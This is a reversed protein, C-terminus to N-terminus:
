VVSISSLGSELNADVSSGIDSSHFDSLVSLCSLGSELNAHVSSSDHGGNEDAANSYFHGPDVNNYFAQTTFAAQKCRAGLAPREEPLKKKKEQKKELTDGSLM